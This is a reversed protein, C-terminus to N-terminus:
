QFKEAILLNFYKGIKARPILFGKQNCEIRMFFVKNQYDVHQDLYIINGGNTHIFEAVSLVLGKRDPCHILLIVSPNAKKNNLCVGNM